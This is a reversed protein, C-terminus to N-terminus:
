SKGVNHCRIDVQHWIHGKWYNRLSVKIAVVYQRVQTMQM